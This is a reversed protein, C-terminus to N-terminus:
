VLHGHTTLFIIVFHHPTNNIMTRGLPRKEYIRNVNNKFKYIYILLKATILCLYPSSVVFALSFRNATSVEM